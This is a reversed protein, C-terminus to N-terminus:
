LVFVDIWVMLGGFITAIVAQIVRNTEQANLSVTNREAIQKKLVTTPKGNISMMVATGSIGTAIGSVNTGEVTLATVQMNLYEPEPPAEFLQWYGRLM